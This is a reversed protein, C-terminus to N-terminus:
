PEGFRGLALPLQPRVWYKSGFILRLADEGLGMSIAHLNKMAAMEIIEGHILEVRRNEFFGLDAMREYECRTFRRAKPQTTPMAKVGRICGNPRAARGTSKRGSRCWNRSGTSPMAARM